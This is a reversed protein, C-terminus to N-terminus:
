KAYKNANKLIFWRKPRKDSLNIIMEFQWDDECFAAAAMLRFDVVCVLDDRWTDPQDIEEADCHLLVNCKGEFDHPMYFGDIENIYLGM